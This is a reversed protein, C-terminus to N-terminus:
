YAVFLTDTRPEIWPLYLQLDTGWVYIVVDSQHMCFCKVCMCLDMSSPIMWSQSCTLKCHPKSYAVAINYVYDRYKLSWQMLIHWTHRKLQLSYLSVIWYERPFTNRINSRSCEYYRDWPSFCEELIHHYYLTCGTGTLQYIINHNSKVNDTAVLYYNFPILQWLIAFWLHNSQSDESM